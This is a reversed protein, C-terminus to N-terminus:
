DAPPLLDIVVSSMARIGAPLAREADPAFGATHLSPAQEKAARFFQMRRPEIVGLEFLVAPVGARGFQSFDEGIMAPEGPLVNGKGLAAELARGVRETLAPDNFLSPTGESVTIVPELAGASAAAARAKRRIAAITHRRVDDSFSRVTLQLTCRDPIINHKTGGHIAGVTVVAPDTPRIERSVITQLDLVLKAAIVIPDITLQPIAGHGGKGVVEIDISDVNAMTYGPRIAVEGSALAPSVHLALAFDPKGFREFLRDDLMARAGAGREEAPQGVLLLRGRWLGRHDALFSATGLLTTMHIDHGCAHMVGVTTGDKGTVTRTSAYSLGTSETVPLGDLDARVLVTPGAGNELVGVVGHGGIGETVTCGAARLRTALFAATEQEEFSLEPNRHLHVYAEVLGTVHGPLWADFAATPPAAAAAGALATWAALVGAVLPAQGGGAVRQGSPTTKPRPPM